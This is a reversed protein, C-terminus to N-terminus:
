AVIEGTEYSQIAFRVPGPVERKGREWESISEPRVDLVKAFDAQTYGMDERLSRLARAWDRAQGEQPAEPVHISLVMTTLPAEPVEEGDEKMAAIHSVLARRMRHITEELTRGTAICGPIDPAYAGYNRETKEIAVLVTHESM